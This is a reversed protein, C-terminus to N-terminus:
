EVPPKAQPLDKLEAGTRAAQRLAEKWSDDAPPPTYPTMVLAAPDRVNLPTIVDGQGGPEHGPAAKLGHEPPGDVPAHVVVVDQAPACAHGPLPGKYHTLLMYIAIPEILFLTLGAALLALDLATLRKRWAVATEGTGEGDARTFSFSLSWSKEAM